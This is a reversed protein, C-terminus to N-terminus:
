GMDEAIAAKLDYEEPDEHGDIEDGIRMAEQYEPLDDYSSVRRAIDDLKETILDKQIPADTGAVGVLKKLAKPTLGLTERHQLIEKRLGAIVPYMEHTFSPKEGEEASASWEKQARTLERELQALTKIEPEFAEEYIGLEKLQRAYIQEKTAM